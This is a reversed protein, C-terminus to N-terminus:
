ADRETAIFIVILSWAGLVPIFLLFQLPVPLAYIISVMPIWFLWNPILISLVRRWLFSQALAGLTAGVKFQRQPLLFLLVILVTWPPTFVFQDFATKSVVTRLAAQAGFLRAELHYLRDVVLGDLGFFFINFAIAGGRGRWRTRSRDALLKAVEPLVGGALATTGMSFWLGGAQKWGAAIACADRFPASFRYGLALALAAAQILLFPRWFRRLAAVGSASASPRPSKTLPNGLPNGAVPPGREPDKV